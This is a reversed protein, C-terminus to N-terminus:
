ESKSPGFAKQMLLESTVAYFLVMSKEPIIDMKTYCITVKNQLNLAKKALKPTKKLKQLTQNQPWSRLLGDPALPLDWRQQTQLLATTHVPDPLSGPAAM